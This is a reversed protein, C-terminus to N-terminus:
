FYHREMRMENVNQEAM